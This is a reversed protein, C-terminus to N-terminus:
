LENTIFYPRDSNNSSHKDLLDKAINESNIIIIDKGLLRSYVIDGSSAAIHSSLTMEACLFKGYIKAWERYTLWPANANIGIINGVWPLGPPGPPLPCTPRANGLYRRSLYILTLCGFAIAYTIMSTTMSHLHAPQPDRWNIFIRHSGGIVSTESRSVTLLLIVFRSQTQM